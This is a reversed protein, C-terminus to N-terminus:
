REIGNEARALSAGTSLWNLNGEQKREIARERHFNEVALRHMKKCRAASKKPIVIILPCPNICDCSRIARSRKKKGRSNEPNPRCDISGPLVTLAPREFESELKRPESVNQSTERRM